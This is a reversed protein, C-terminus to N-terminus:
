KKMRLSKGAQQENEEFPNEPIQEAKDEAAMLIESVCFIPHPQKTMKEAHIQVIQPLSM